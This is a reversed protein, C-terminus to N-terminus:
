FASRKDKRRLRKDEFQGAYRIGEVSWQMGNLKNYVDKANTVIM